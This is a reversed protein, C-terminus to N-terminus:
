MWVSFDFRRLAVDGVFLIMAATLLYPWLPLAQQVPNEPKALLQEMTPNYTGGSLTAVREMLVDDAPGLRLEEPYGVVMGRSQRFMPVGDKTQSLELQYAGAKSADFTGEYRGPGTQRMAIEQKDLGSSILNLKTEADNIFRGNLDVSDVIVRAEADQRDVQVFVGKSENKRM